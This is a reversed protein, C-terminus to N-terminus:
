SEVWEGDVDEVEVLHEISLWDRGECEEAPLGFWSEVDMSDFDAKWSEETAVDGSITHMYHTIKKAGNNSEDLGCLSLSYSVAIQTEAELIAVRLAAAQNFDKVEAKKIADAFEAEASDYAEDSSKGANLEERFKGMLKDEFVSRASPRQQVEELKAKFAELHACTLIAM